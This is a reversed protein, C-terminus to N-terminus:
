ESEGEDVVLRLPVAMLRGEGFAPDAVACCVKWLEDEEADGGYRAWHEDDQTPEGIVEVEFGDASLMDESDFFVERFYWEDHAYHSSHKEHSASCIKISPFPM